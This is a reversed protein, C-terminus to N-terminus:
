NKLYKDLWGFFERQWMLSNQPKLVWHGEDPFSLFKAPIKKLRAASYAELGQSYPIRYDKENSIILIPTDWNNVYNHPSFKTYSIPQPMRWYAGDFEHLHFFLEETAIMSEINFVGCHSIFAKFRRQHHGALWFVSYGGFSAGVAGMRDKNVYPYKSVSDIASLLDTMAQGGWDNSIEDNWEKGFGPLGRRNPAVVIYGNAAMLQFNWRYSFFQSVTSQPGGQCYLLAPYKNKPNFNPPYIVWTLMDKGDSTKIMMKKVEGLTLPSLVDDNTFTLQNSKGTKSDISFLETPQSISMRSALIVDDKKENSAISLGNFDAIDTTLQKIGNTKALTECYFIQDTAQIDALFYIRDSRGSWHLNEVNYEFGKSLNSKAKTTLDYTFLRQLSAENGAEEWSIWAMTTGDPSFAPSKDYGPNDSTVNLTKGSAVEYLYIDSNTNVSYELGTFKKCTYALFKGDRSWSIEEDGGHPKMPADYHENKMIDVPDSKIKGNSLPAIFVHSYSGDAWQDWHRMMLDDYVHGTSKPLDPYKDKGLFRDLKVDISLWIMSGNGSIGYTNIDEKLDGAQQKDSGDANMSWLQSGTKDNLYFIRKGDSSWRPQTENSSDSAIARASHTSFNYLWIDTNGKNEAVNFRRINYVALKGDPSLQPDSVRGMKWLLEPTLWDAKANVSIIGLLLTICFIYSKIM